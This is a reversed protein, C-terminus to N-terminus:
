PNAVFLSEQFLLSFATVDIPFSAAELQVKLQLFVKKFVGMVAVSFHEKKQNFDAEFLQVLTILQDILVEVDGRTANFVCRGYDSELLPSMENQAVWPHFNEQM